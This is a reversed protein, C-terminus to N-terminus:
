VPVVFFRCEPDLTMDWKFEVLPGVPGVMATVWVGLWKQAMTGWLYPTAGTKAARSICANIQLLKPASYRPFKDVIGPPFPNGYNAQMWM